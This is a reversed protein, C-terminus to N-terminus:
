LIGSPHNGIPHVSRNRWRRAAMIRGGTGRHLDMTRGVAEAPEARNKPGQQRGAGGDGTLGSGGVPDGDGGPVDGPEPVPDAVPHKPAVLAAAAEQPVLGIELPEPADHRPQRVEFDLDDPKLLHLVRGRDAPDERLFVPVEEERGALGVRLPGLAGGDDHAAGRTPADLPVRVDDLPGRLAAVPVPHVEREGPALLPDPHEGEVELGAAVGFRETGRVRLAAEQPHLEGDELAPEEFPHRLPDRGHHGAVPVPEQGARAVFGGGTQGPLRPNERVRAASGRAPVPVEIVVHVVDHGESRPPPFDSGGREFLHEVSRGPRRAVPEGVM